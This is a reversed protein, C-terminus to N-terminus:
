QAARELRDLIALWPERVPPKEVLICDSATKDLEHLLSYLKQAYEFATNPAQVWDLIDHQKPLFSIVSVNKRTKLMTLLADQELLYLPKKPAYHHRDSGPMNVIETPVDLPSGLVNTLTSLTLSGQRLLLPKDTLQVITSEIGLTCPGGDLVAIDDFANEVHQATTPSIQGYRNASPAVVASNLKNLLALTLPHNPIRLAITPKHATISSLVQPHKPLVLTLPGPWFANALTYASEPIDIAWEHIAELNPLHVILPHTSPRGKTAFVNEIAQAETAKAALGYVTETPIAVLEGRNLRQLATDVTVIM